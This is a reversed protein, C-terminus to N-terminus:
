ADCSELCSTQIGAVIRSRLAVIAVALNAPPDGMLVLTLAM